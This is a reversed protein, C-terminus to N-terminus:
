IGLEHTLQRKVQARLPDGAAYRDEVGRWSLRELLGQESEGEPVPFSPFRYGLDALTFGCREAIARTARLAAPRDRFLAAMAAPSKLWREGNPPLRRGIDDVTAKERACTLVDHRIRACPPAYRVDNTAVVDIGAAAAQALAARERRGDEPLLHR